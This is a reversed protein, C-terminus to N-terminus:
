GGPASFNINAVANEAQSVTHNMINGVKPRIVANAAVMIAAVIVTFIIIYELTSQGRKGLMRKMKGGGTKLFKALGQAQMLFFIRLSKGQCFLAEAKPLGTLEV